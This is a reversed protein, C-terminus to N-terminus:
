GKRSVNKTKKPTPPNRQVTLVFDRDSDATLILRSSAHVHFRRAGIYSVEISTEGDPAVVRVFRAGHDTKVHEGDDEYRGTQYRPKDNKYSM